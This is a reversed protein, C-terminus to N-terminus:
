APDTEGGVPRDLVFVEVAIDPDLHNSSMFARVKAGTLEEVKATLEPRMTEQFAERMRAVADEMGRALLSREARTLTDELLVVVVDNRYFASARTPGRGTQDRQYHVVARAIAANLEGGVPRQEQPEGGNHRGVDISVLTDEDATCDLVVVFESAASAAVGMTGTTGTLDLFDGKVRAYPDTVAYVADADSICTMYTEGGVGDLTELAVGILALDGTAGLALGDAEFNLMDGRTLTETDKFVFRRVTADGGGLRYRFEFGPM